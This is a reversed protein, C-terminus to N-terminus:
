APRQQELAEVRARLDALQRDMEDLRRELAERRATEEIDHQEVRKLQANMVIFEQQLVEIRRHIDDFHTELSQFRTEM